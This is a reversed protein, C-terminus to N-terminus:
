SEIEAVLPLPTTMLSSAVVGEERPPKPKECNKPMFSM